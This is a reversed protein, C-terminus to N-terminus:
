KQKGLGLGPLAPGGGSKSPGCDSQVFMGQV